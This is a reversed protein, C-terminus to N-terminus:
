AVAVMPRQDGGIWLVTGDPRLIVTRDLRYSCIGLPGVYDSWELRMRAVYVGHFVQTKSSYTQPVSSVSASYSFKSRKIGFGHALEGRGLSQTLTLYYRVADMTVAYALRAGDCEGYWWLRKEKLLYKGMGGAISAVAKTPPYTEEAIRLLKEQEPNQFDRRVTAVFARATTDQGIGPYVLEIEHNTIRAAHTDITPGPFPKGLQDSATTYSSLPIILTGTSLHFDLRTTQGAVVRVSTKTCGEYGRTSADVLYKGVPIASVVYTGELTSFTDRGANWLRVTAGAIPSGALDMVRGTIAGTAMSVADLDRDPELRGSFDESSDGPLAYWHCASYLSDQKRLVIRFGTLSSKPPIGSGVGTGVRWSLAFTTSDRHLLDDSVFRSERRNTQVPTCTWGPPGFATDPLIHSDEGTLECNGGNFGIRIETLARRSRNLVRYTYVCSDAHIGSRVGVQVLCGGKWDSEAPSDCPWCTGHFVPIPINKLAMDVTTTIGATVHIGSQVARGGEDQAALLTYTGPSVKPLSIVGTSDATDVLWAGLVEVHAREAPKGHEDVIRVLISGNSLSPASRAPACAYAITITLLFRILATRLASDFRM